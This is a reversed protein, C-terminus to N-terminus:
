NQLTKNKRKYYLKFFYVLLSAPANGWCVPRKKRLVSGWGLPLSFLQGLGWAGTRLNTTGNELYRCLREICEGELYARYREAEGAQELELRTIQAVRDAATWTRLDQNLSIYDRGDYAFQEYGRLLRGNSDVDCGSIVQITHSGTGM